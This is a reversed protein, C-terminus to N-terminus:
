LNRAEWTFSATSSLGQAAPDNNLTVVFKYSHQEGQSWTEPSGSTPDVLGAVYSSPFASLLGSYIVGAGQGIYNTTDATFNACSDFSPASDAGRTVTLTLYPALSGTVTGYLRLDANLTGGYTIRICATDSNGPVANLLSLMASEADNDSLEVSGAALSNGSSMATASFASYVSYTALGLLGVAILSFLLRRAPRM